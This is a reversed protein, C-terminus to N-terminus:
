YGTSWGIPQDELGTERIEQLGKRANGGVDLEGERAVEKNWVDLCERHWLEVFFRKDSFTSMGRFQSSLTLLTPYSQVTRESDLRLGWTRTQTPVTLATEIPRLM